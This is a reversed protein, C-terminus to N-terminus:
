GTRLSMPTIAPVRCRIRAGKGLQGQANRLRVILQTTVDQGAAVLLLGSPARVDELLSMGSRLEPVSLDQDVHTTGQAAIVRALAEVVADDHLPNSRLKRFAVAPEVGRSFMVDLAVAACLVHAAATRPAKGEEPQGGTIFPGAISLLEVIGDLRPIGALVNRATEAVSRVAQQEDESLAEQLHVKHMVDEPVAVWGVQSLLAAVEVHWADALALAKCTESVWRRLTAARGFATPSAISLVDCLVNVCGRVTQELLVKESAILGHQREAAKLSRILIPGPCPKTLFRFVHGENIAQIVSAVDGDGSLLLCVTDPSNSRLEQLLELGDKGPMRLDSLVVPFPGERRAVDLAQQAGVATTVDFFRHLVRTLGELVNPEDDVCLIKTRENQM